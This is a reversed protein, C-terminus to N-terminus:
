KVDGRKRLWEYHKWDEMVPDVKQKKVDHIDMPCGCVWCFGQYDPDDEYPHEAPEPKM